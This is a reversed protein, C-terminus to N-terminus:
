GSRARARAPPQPPHRLLQVTSTAAAVRPLRCGRPLRIRAWAQLLIHRTSTVECVAGCRVHMVLWLRCHRTSRCVDTSRYASLSAVCHQSPAGVDYNSQSKSYIQRPKRLTVSVPSYLTYRIRRPSHQQETRESQADEAHHTLRTNVSFVTRNLTPAATLTERLQPFKLGSTHLAARTVRRPVSKVVLSRQVKDCSSTM